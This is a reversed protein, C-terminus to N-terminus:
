IDDGLLVIGEIEKTEPVKQEEEEKQPAKEEKKVAEEKKNESVTKPGSGRGPTQKRKGRIEQEMRVTWGACYLFCHLAFDISYEM